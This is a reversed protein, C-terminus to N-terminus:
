EQDEGCFVAWGNRCHPISRVCRYSQSELLRTYNRANKFSCIDDLAIWKSGFVKELEADASFECGDIIAFDFVDVMKELAVDILDQEPHDRAIMDLTEQRWGLVQDIPYRHAHSARLVDVGAIDDIGCAMGHLCRVFDYMEMRAKLAAFRNKDAEICVVQPTWPSPNESAGRLIAKTSGEGSSAGIDLITRTEPLACIRAIEEFLGDGPVIEPPILNAM